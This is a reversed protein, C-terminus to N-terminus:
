WGVIAEWKKNQMVIVIAHIFDNGNEKRIVDLLELQLGHRVM